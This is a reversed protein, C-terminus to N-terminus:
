WDKQNGYAKRYANPTMGVFEQFVKIYHSQSSFGLYLGIEQIKCDSYILMNQSRKIKERLIYKKLPIQEEKHFIHSLYDPNVGFQRALESVQIPFHLNHYIYEKVQEVLPSPERRIKEAANDSTKEGATEAPPEMVKQRSRRVLDCFMIKAERKFLEVEEISQLDELQCTLSDTLAFSQEVCVGGRIAARSALAINGIAINKANRLPDRAVVGIKGEYVEEMSEILAQRDGDEISKMERQEQSYPNHHQQEELAVFMDLSAQRQMKRVLGEQGGTM